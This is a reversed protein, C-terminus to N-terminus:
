YMESLLKNIVKKFYNTNCSVRDYSYSSIGHLEGIVEPPNTDFKKSLVITAAFTNDEVLTSHFENFNLDYKESKNIEKQYILTYNVLKETAILSSQTDKYTVQYIKHTPTHQNNTIRYLQNTITTM